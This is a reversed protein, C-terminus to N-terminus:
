RSVDVSINTGGGGGGRADISALVRKLKQFPDLVCRSMAEKILVSDVVGFLKSFKCM